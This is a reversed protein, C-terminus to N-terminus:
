RSAGPYARMRYVRLETADPYIERVEALPMLSWPRRMHGGNKTFVLDDAVYNAAHVPGAGPIAFLIVDGFSRADWEVREYDRELIAQAGRGDVFEDPPQDLSFFHLATWYCDRPPDDRFAFSNVRRRAFPPLLNVVDLRGGEPLRAVAEFFPRLNRSRTGRGWYAMLADLDSRADVVVWAMVASMRSLAELIRVRDEDSRAAACLLHLDSLFVTEGRRWSLREVLDLDVVASLDRWRDERAPRSFPFAQAANETYRGLLTYLRARTDPSLGRVLDDGPRVACGNADCRARTALADVAGPEVGSSAFLARLTSATHGPLAWTPAETSCMSAQYFSPPQELHVGVREMRGWPGTAISAGSSTSGGRLGFFVALALVVAAAFGWPANAHGATPRPPSVAARIEEAGPLDTEAPLRAPVDRAVRPKSGATNPPTSRLPKRSM